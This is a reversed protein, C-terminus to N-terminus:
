SEETFLLVECIEWSDDTFILLKAYADAIKIM